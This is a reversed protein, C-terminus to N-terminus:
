GCSNLAPLCQTDLLNWYTRLILDIASSSGFSKGIISHPLPAEVNEHQPPANVQEMHREAHAVPEEHITSVSLKDRHRKWYKLQRRRLTIGHALRSALHDNNTQVDDVHPERLYRLLEDTHQKDYLAYAGLIDVGTEPDKPQHSAAKLSRSRITPTRIRVSLKYLNDLIDVVEEYRMTLENKSSGADSDGDDESFFGDDDDDDTQQEGPDLKPQDEFPLRAGSIIKHAHDLNQQLEDLFKLANGSLLPSDRLRYDLSSHGKQLAGLNGAWVRFRGFEDEIAEQDVQEKWQDNNAVLANVLIQFGRVNAATALRISTM